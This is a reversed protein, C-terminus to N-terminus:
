SHIKDGRELSPSLSVCRWQRGELLRGCIRLASKWRIQLQWQPAEDEIRILVAREPHASRLIRRLQLPLYAPNSAVIELPNSPLHQEARTSLVAMPDDLFELVDSVFGPLGYRQWLQQGASQMTQMRSTDAALAELHAPLAAVATETESVFLAAQQWLEADGPLWLHDSLIVPIAGYGLAEWLRISNPGSGSPCLAFVSHQLTDAYDTAESALQAARGRDVPQGLLQERYVAQEYHWEQRRELLADARPSWQLIWERVPTLYLGPQYAGQFSYLISRDAPPLLPVSPRHSTCRVPYLPFPHIRVGNQTLAGTTAHSWFLDTIGAAMFLELHELAWIHQCVTARIQDSALVRLQNTADVASILGRRLRDICTAWPYPVYGTATALLEAAFAETANPRQWATNAAPSSPL